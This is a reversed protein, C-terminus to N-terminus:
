SMYFIFTKFINVKKLLKLIKIHKVKSNNLDSDWYHDHLTDPFHISNFILIVDMFRSWLFYYVTEYFLDLNM